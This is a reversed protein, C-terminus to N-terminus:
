KRLSLVEQFASAPLRGEFSGGRGVLKFAFGKTAAQTFDQQSMIISGTEYLTCGAACGMVKESTVYYPFRKGHSWAERFFKWSGGTAYYEVTVQYGATSSWAAVANANHLLGSSIPYSKSHAVTKGTHHDRVVGATGQCSSLMIAALISMFIIRFSM